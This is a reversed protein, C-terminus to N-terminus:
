LTIVRPTVNTTDDRNQILGGTFVDLMVVVWFAKSRSRSVGSTIAIATLSRQRHVASHSRM